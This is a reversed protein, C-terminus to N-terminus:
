PTETKRALPLPFPLPPEPLPPQRLNQSIEDQENGLAIRTQHIRRGLLSPNWNPQKQELGLLLSLAVRLNEHREAPPLDRSQLVLDEAEQYAKPIAKGKLIAIVKPATAPPHTIHDSPASAEKTPSSVPEQSKSFHLALAGGILLVGLLTSRSVKM